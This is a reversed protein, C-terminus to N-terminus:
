APGPSSTSYLACPKRIYLSYARPTPAVGTAAGSRASVASTSARSLCRDLRVRM